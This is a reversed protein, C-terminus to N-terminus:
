TLTVDMMDLSLRIAHAFQDHFLYFMTICLFVIFLYIFLFWVLQFCFFLIVAFGLGVSL